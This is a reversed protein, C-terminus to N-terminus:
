LVRRGFETTYTAAGSSAFAAVPAGLAIGIGIETFDRDLINRKHGPSEMWSQVIERPTAYHGSGWALNEGLSWAQTSRLYSTRRIRSTLTSGGPSVHDFFRQRVMLRSYNTAVSRLTDHSRLKRLGRKTREGNLLCLTAARTEAVTGATPTEDANGCGKKPKAIPATVTDLTDELLDLVQANAASPFVALALVSALLPIRKPLM